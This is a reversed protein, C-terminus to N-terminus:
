ALYNRVFDVGDKGNKSEKSEKESVSGRDKYIHYGSDMVLQIVALEERENLKYKEKLFEFVSEFDHGASVVSNILIGVLAREFPTVVVQLVPTAAEKELAAEKTLGQETSAKSELVKEKLANLHKKLVILDKMIKIRTQELEEADLVGENDMRIAESIEKNIKNLFLMARECGVMSKGDHRPIKSPYSSHIYEMFKAVDRDEEWSTEKEEEKEEEEIEGEFGPISVKDTEMIEQVTEDGDFFQESFEIVNESYADAIDMVDEQISEAIESPTQGMEEEFEVEEDENMEEQFEVDDESSPHIEHFESHPHEHGESFEIVFPQAHAPMLQATKSTKM